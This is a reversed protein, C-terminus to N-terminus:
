LLNYYYIIKIYDLFYFICLACCFTVWVFLELPRDSSNYCVKVVLNVANPSSSEFWM